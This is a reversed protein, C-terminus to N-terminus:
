TLAAKICLEILIWLGFTLGIGVLWPNIEYQHHAKAPKM